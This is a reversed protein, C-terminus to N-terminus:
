DAESVLRNAANIIEEIVEEYNSIRSRPFRFGIAGPHGGGDSVNLQDLLERLDVGEYGYNRRMRCQLLNEDNREDYYAVLGLRGSEEALRDTASRAVAVVVDPGYENFLMSSEEPDLAVFGVAGEVRKKRILHEWVRREADSLRVMETYVHASDALNGKSFTLEQLLNDLFNTLLNYIRAERTSSLVRGMQTDGVMGTLLAVVVNRSFVEDVLGSWNLKMALRALLSCASSARDVLAFEPKGIYESDGGLHHDIEMVVTREEAIAKRLGSDNPLLSPKATDCIVASDPPLEAADNVIVGNYRAITLLYDLNNPMHGATVIRVPKLFKRILLSVAVMTALCDADPGVHGSVLFSEGERFRNIIRRYLRNKEAITTLPEKSM